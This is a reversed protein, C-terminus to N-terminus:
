KKVVYFMENYYRIIDYDYSLKLLLDEFWKRKPNNMRKGRATKTAFSVVIYKSKIDKLVELAKKKNRNFIDFVKFSFVVDVKDLGNVDDQKVDFYFVEGKIKNKKFYKKVRKLAENDVDCALYYINKYLFNLPNLGCGLDLIKKPKGTISFIKEYLEKSFEKREQISKEKLKM